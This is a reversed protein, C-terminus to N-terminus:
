GEEHKKLWEVWFRIGQSIDAKNGYVWDCEYQEETLRSLSEAAYHRVWGNEPDGLADVLAKLAAEGGALGLARAAERRGPKDPSLLVAALDRAVKDDADGLRGFEVLATQYIPAPTFSLQGDINQQRRSAEDKEAVRASFNLLMAFQKYGLDRAPGLIQLAIVVQYANFDGTPNNHAIYEDILGRAIQKARPGAFEYLRLMAVSRVAYSDCYKADTAIKILLKEDKPLFRKLGIAHYRVVENTQKNLAVDLLWDEGTIVELRQFVELALAVTNTNFFRLASKKMFKTLDGVAAKSGTSALALMAAQHPFDGTSDIWEAAKKFLAVTDSDVAHLRTLACIGTFMRERGELLKNESFCAGTWERVAALAEDSAGPGLAGIAWVSLAQDWYDGDKLQQLLIPELARAGRKVLGTIARVRSVADQSQTLTLLAENVDNGDFFRLMYVANRRVLQHEHGLAAEILKGKIPDGINMIEEGFHPDYDFPYGNGLEDIILRNYFTETPTAGEKAAPLPWSCAKGLKSQVARATRSISPGEGVVLDAAFLAPQGTEVLHFVLEPIPMGTPYCYLRVYHGLMKYRMAKSLAPKYSESKPEPASGGQPAGQVEGQDSFWQLHNGVDQTTVGGEMWPDIGIAYRLQDAVKEIKKDMDVASTADPDPADPVEPKATDGEGSTVIDRMPATTGPRWQSWDLPSGPPAPSVDLCAYTQRIGLLSLILVLFLSLRTKM